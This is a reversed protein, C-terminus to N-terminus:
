MLVCLLATAGGLTPHLQSWLCWVCQAILQTREKHGRQREKQQMSLIMAEVLRQCAAGLEMWM